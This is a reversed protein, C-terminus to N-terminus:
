GPMQPYKFALFATQADHLGINWTDLLDHFDNFGIVKVPLINAPRKIFFDTAYMSNLFTRFAARDTDPGLSIGNLVSAPLSDLARKGFTEFAAARVDAILIRAEMTGFVGLGIGVMDHYTEPQAPPDMLVVDVRSAFARAVGIPTNATVGGDVYQATGGGPAPLVVPDFAAPIATSAHLADILLEPTAERVATQPGVTSQIAEVVVARQLSTLQSPVRYFFEPRQSTLNTVTWVVPTLVPLAPDINKALWARIPASDLVGEVNSTVGTGLRIAQIIRNGIGADPNTIKQFEPKLRVIEENGVNWWMERLTNYQGTAVFYANLAGISTGCVLGYPALIEGDKIGRANPLGQIMGAQYAGRAGGGSLVLASRTLRRQQLIEIGGAVDPPSVQSQARASLPVVAAQAAALGALFRARSLPDHMMGSRIVGGRLLRM